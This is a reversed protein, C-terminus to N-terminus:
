DGVIVNRANLLAVQEQTEASIRYQAQGIKRSPWIFIPMFAICFLALRWDIVLMVTLTVAGNVLNGLIGSLLDGVVSQVGGVDNNIRSITEGARSTTFWQLPMRALHRYMRRRLDFVVRQGLLQSCFGQSVGVITMAVIVIIMAVILKDLYGIDGRKFAGDIVERIILPPLLGMLSSVAVLGLLLALLWLHPRYLALAKVLTPGAPRAPRAKRAQQRYRRGPM